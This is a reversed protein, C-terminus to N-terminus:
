YTTIYPSDFVHYYSLIYGTLQSQAKKTLVLLTESLIRTTLQSAVLIITVKIKVSLIRGFTM